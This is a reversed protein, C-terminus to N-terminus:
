VGFLTRANGRFVGPLEDDPFLARVFDRYVAVPALPWDSGFLFRDPAGTFEIAARVRDAARELVGAKGYRAFAERDGAGARRILDDEDPDAM